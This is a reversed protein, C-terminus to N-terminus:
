VCYRSTSNLALDVIETITNFCNNLFNSLRKVYVNVGINIQWNSTSKLCVM